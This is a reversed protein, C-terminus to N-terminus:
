STSEERTLDLLTEVAPWLAYALKIRRADGIGVCPQNILEIPIASLAMEWFLGRLTREHIPEGCVTHQGDCVEECGLRIVRECHM